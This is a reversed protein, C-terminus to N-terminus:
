KEEDEEDDEEEEDGEAIEYEVAIDWRSGPAAASVYKVFRMVGSDRMVLSLINGGPTVSLLSEEAEEGEPDDGKYVEAAEAGEGESTDSIIYCEFGGIDGNDWAGEGDEGDDDDDDDEGEGKEEKEEKKEEDDNELILKDENVFCLTADLRPITTMAGFHAVTYDLGPRFRRVEDRHAVAILATLRHLYKAFAKSHFLAKRVNDLLDGAKDTTDNNSDASYLMHKRKHPPGVTTWGGGEGVQYDIPPRGEGLSDNKDADGTAQFIQQSIDEKLFNKLQVSSDDCFQNNIKAMASDQLYTQILTLTLTLALTM